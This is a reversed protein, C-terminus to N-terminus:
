IGGGGGFSPKRQPNYPGEIHKYRKSLSEREGGHWARRLMAFVSTDIIRVIIELSNKDVEWNQWNLRILRVIAIRVELAIRSIDETEFNSLAIHRNLFNSLVLILQNIGDERMMPKGKQMWAGRRSSWLNGRLKQEIEELIDETELIYRTIESGASVGFSEQDNIEVPGGGDDYPNQQGGGKLLNLPNIM